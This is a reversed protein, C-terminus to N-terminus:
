GSVHIMPRREPIPEAERLVEHTVPPVDGQGLFLYKIVFLLPNGESWSFYAHPMGGTVDRIHLLLAAISNPVTTAYVRLIKYGHREEGQVVIAGAFDSADVVTVELFM